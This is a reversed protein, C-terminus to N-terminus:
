LYDGSSHRKAEDKFTPMGARKRNMGHIEWSLYDVETLKIVM